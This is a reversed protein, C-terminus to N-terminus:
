KGKVLATSCRAMIRDPAGKIFVTMNGHEDVPENNLPDMDRIFCAFKIDSSFPIMAPKGSKLTVIPKSARAGTIGDDYGYKDALLPQIFKIM